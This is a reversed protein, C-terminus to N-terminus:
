RRFGAASSTRNTGARIPQSGNAAGDPEAEKDVKVIFEYPVMLGDFWVQKGSYRGSARQTLLRLAHQTKQVASAKEHVRVRLSRPHSGRPLYLYFHTSQGVEADGLVHLTPIWKGHEDEIQSVDVFAPKSGANRVVFALRESPVYSPFKGNSSEANVFSVTFKSGGNGCTLIVLMALVLLLGLSVSSILVIKIKRNM